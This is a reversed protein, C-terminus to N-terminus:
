EDAQMDTTFVDDYRTEFPCTGLVYVGPVIRTQATKEDKQTFTCTSSNHLITSLGRLYWKQLLALESFSCLQQDDNEDYDADHEPNRHAIRSRTSSLREGRSPIRFDATRNKRPGQAQRYVPPPLVKNEESSGDDVPLRIDIRTFLDQITCVLYSCHFYELVRYVPLNGPNRRELEFLVAQIHLMPNSIASLCYFVPVKAPVVTLKSVHMKKYNFLKAAHPTINLGEAGWQNTTELLSNHNQLALVCYVRLPKFILNNRTWEFNEITETHIYGVAVPVIRKNGNGSLCFYNNFTWSPAFRWSVDFSDGQMIWSAHWELDLIPAPLYRLSELCTLVNWESYINSLGSGPPPIGRWSPVEFGAFTRNSTGTPKSNRLLVVCAPIILFMAFSLPRDKVNVGQKQKLEDRQFVFLGNVTVPRASENGSIEMAVELDIQM